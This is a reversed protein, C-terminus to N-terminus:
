REKQMSELLSCPLLFWSGPLNGNGPCWMDTCANEAWYSFSFLGWILEATFIIDYCTTVCCDTLWGPLWTEAGALAWGGGGGCGNNSTEARFIWGNEVDDEVIRIVTVEGKIVPSYNPGLLGNQRGRPAARHWECILGHFVINFATLRLPFSRPSCLYLSQLYM